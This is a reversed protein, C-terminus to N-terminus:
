ANRGARATMVLRGDGARAELELAAASQSAFLDLKEGCILPSQGKFRFSVFQGIERRALDALLTAILPGHVVLGDYGEVGTAYPHDYHIRHGNFTLASYRFLLVPDTKITALPKGVPREARVMATRKGIDGTPDRYVIDQTETLAPGRDTSIEHVVKVFVLPGTRGQKPEIASITSSRTVADGVALADFFRLEGGAWKRRSLPIRPLHLGLAPHGDPGLNGAPEAIPALCWHLCTLPRGTEDALDVLPVTACFREVLGATIRERGVHSRGIWEAYDDATHGKEQEVM